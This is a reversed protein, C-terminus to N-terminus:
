VHARGIEQAARLGESGVAERFDVVDAIRWRAFADVVLRRDDLPTVELPETPLGLIRDDYRVVEQILPLKFALGPNEKVAKVQGFQLVLAKEREDVIFVSSLGLAVLVVVIPLLLTSRKM